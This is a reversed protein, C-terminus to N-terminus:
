LDSCLRNALLLFLFLPAFIFPLSANAEGVSILASSGFTQKLSSAGRECDSGAFPSEYSLELTTLSGGDISPMITSSPRSVDVHVSGLLGVTVARRYTGDEIEVQKVEDGAWPEESRRELWDGILRRAIAYKGPLGFM